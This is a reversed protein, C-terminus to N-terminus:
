YGASEWAAYGGLMNYVKLFGNQVLIGSARVSRSGSWCHVIIETNKYADLEGIRAELDDVPILIADALHGADYEPQTRVDLVILDPYSVDDDIMIKAEEVSIDTYEVASGGGKLLLPIGIAFGVIIISIVGILLFRSKSLKKESESVNSM